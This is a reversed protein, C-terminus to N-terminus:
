REKTTQSMNTNRKKSAICIWFNSLETERERKPVFKKKKWCHLMRKIYESYAFAKICSIEIVRITKSVDFSVFQFLFIEVYKYFITWPRLYSLLSPLLPDLHYINCETIFSLFIKEDDRWSCTVVASFCGPKECLNWIGWGNWLCYFSSIFSVLIRFNGVSMCLIKWLKEGGM